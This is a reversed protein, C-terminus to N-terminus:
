GVIRMEYRRVKEDSVVLEIRRMRRYAFEGTAKMRYVESVEVAMHEGLDELDGVDFEIELNEPPSAWTLDDRVQDIGTLSRQPTVWVVDSALLPYVGDWDGSKAALELASLFRRAIQENAATV